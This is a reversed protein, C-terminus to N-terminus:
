KAVYPRILVFLCGDMQSNQRIHHSSLSALCVLVYPFGKQKFHKKLPNPMGAERQACQQTPPEAPRGVIVFGAKGSSGAKPQHKEEFHVTQAFVSKLAHVSLTWHQASHPSFFGKGRLLHCDLRGKAWWWTDFAANWCPLSAILCKQRGSLNWAPSVPKAPARGSNPGNM